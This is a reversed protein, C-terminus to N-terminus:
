YHASEIHGNDSFPFESTPPFCSSFPETMCSAHRSGNDTKRLIVFESANLLCVELVFLTTVFYVQRSVCVQFINTGRVQRTFMDSVSSLM